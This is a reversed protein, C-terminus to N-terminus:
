SNLAQGSADVAHISSLKYSYIRVFKFYFDCTFIMHVQELADVSHETIHALLQTHAELKIAHLIMCSLM